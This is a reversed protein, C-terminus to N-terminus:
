PHPIPHTFRAYYSASPHIPRQLPHGVKDAPMLNQDAAVSCVDNLPDTDGIMTYGGQGDAMAHTATFGSLPHNPNIMGNTQGSILNIAGPTSPGFVTTWSNDNMAFNQAYHWLATV